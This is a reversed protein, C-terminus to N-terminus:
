SSSGLNGAAITDEPTLLLFDSGNYATWHPEELFNIAGLNSIADIPDAPRIGGESTTAQTQTMAQPISELSHSYSSDDVEDVSTDLALNMQLLCRNLLTLGTDAITNASAMVRLNNLARSLIHRIRQVSGKASAPYMAATSTLLLAADITFFSLTYMSYHHRPTMAFVRDQSDLADMTSSLVERRSEEHTALHPRHLSYVNSSVSTIITERQLPLRDYLEDFITDPNQIRLFNPLAAVLSQLQNQMDQVLIYTEPSVHDLGLDRSDHIKCAVDYQFLREAFLFPLGDAVLVNPDTTLPEAPIDCNLPRGNRCDNRHIMAPRGLLLSMGSDSDIIDSMRSLAKYV